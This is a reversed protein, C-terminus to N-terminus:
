HKLQRIVYEGDGGRRRRMIRRQGRKRSGMRRCEM